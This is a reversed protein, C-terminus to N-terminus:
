IAGDDFPTIRRRKYVVPEVAPIPDVTLIETREADQNFNIVLGTRPINDQHHLQVMYKQIQNCVKPPMSRTAKIEIVHDSTVLDARCSGLMEGDYIVPVTREMQTSADVKILKNFLANQYITESYGAGLDQMIKEAAQVIATTEM